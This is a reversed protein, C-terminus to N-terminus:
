AGGKKAFTRERYFPRSVYKDALAECIVQADRANECFAIVNEQNERGLLCPAVVIEYKMDTM